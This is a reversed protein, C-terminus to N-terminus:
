RKKGGEGITIKGINSHIYDSDVNWKQKIFPIIQKIFQKSYKKNDTRMYTIYGNEYLKQALQMTRKPSYHLENSSKQQLTSTSFPQPAKRLSTTPENPKLLVHDFNASEEM